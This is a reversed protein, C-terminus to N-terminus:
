GVMETQRGVVVAAAVVVAAPNQRIFRFLLNINEKQAPCFLTVM